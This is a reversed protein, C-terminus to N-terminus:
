DDVVGQDGRKLETVIQEQAKAPGNRVQRGLTVAATLRKRDVMGKLAMITTKHDLPMVLDAILQM